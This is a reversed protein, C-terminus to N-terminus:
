KLLIMTRTQVFEGSKLLYFYIGSALNSGDFNVEYNGSRLEENVLKTIEKGLINYVILKVNSTERKV